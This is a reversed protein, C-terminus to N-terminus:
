NIRDDKLEESQAWKQAWGSANERSKELEEMARRKANLGVHGYVEKIMRITTSTSWGMLEAVISHSVGAELMRTCATHRLDHFRCEVGARKKAIEWAEKWSGLPQTPDTDYAVSSTFGFQAPLGCCCGLLGLSAAIALHRVRIGAM